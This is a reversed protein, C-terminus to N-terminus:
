KIEKKNCKKFTWKALFYVITITLITAIGIDVNKFTENDEKAIGSLFVWDFFIGIFIPIFKLTEITKVKLSEANKICGNDKKRFYIFTPIFYVFLDLALPFTIFLTIFISYFLVLTSASMANKTGMYDEISKKNEPNKEDEENKYKLWKFFFPALFSTAPFYYELRDVNIKM